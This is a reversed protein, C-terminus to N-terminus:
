GVCRHDTLWCCLLGSFTPFVTEEVSATPSVSCSCAFSDSQVVKECVCLSLSLISQLRLHLASVMFSSSHVPVTSKLM